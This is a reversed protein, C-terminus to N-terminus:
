MANPFPGLPSANLTWVYENAYKAESCAKFKPLSELIRMPTGARKNRELRGSRLRFQVGPGGFFM